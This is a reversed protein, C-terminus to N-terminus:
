GFVSQMATVAQYLLPFMFLVAAPMIGLLAALLLHFRIKQSDAQMMSFYRAFMLEEMRHLTKGADGTQLCQRIQTAMLECDTGGFCDRIEQFAQDFDLTLEYRAAFRILVPRVASDQVADPLGKLSDTIKVGAALQLNLFRYIKYLATAFARKRQSIRQGLWSNVSCICMLGLLIAQTIPWGSALSMLIFAPMTLLMLCFYLARAKPSSLGARELYIWIKQKWQAPIVFPLRYQRSFNIRSDNLRLVLLCASHPLLQFVLWGILLALILWSFVTM